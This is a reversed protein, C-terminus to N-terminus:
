LRCFSNGGGTAGAPSSICIAADGSCAGVLADNNVGRRRRKSHNKWSFIDRTAFVIQATPVAACVGGENNPETCVSLLRSEDENVSYWVLPRCFSEGRARRGLAVWKPPTESVRAFKPTEESIEVKEFKL